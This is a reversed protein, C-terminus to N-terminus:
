RLLDVIDIVMLAVVLGMVALYIASMAWRSKHNSVWFRRMGVVDFGLAVVALPLGIAPAVGTAAGLLPAVIPLFVYTLLCRLASLLIGTSFVRHVDRRRAPPQDPVLLLRRMIVDARGTSFAVSRGSIATGPPEVPAASV